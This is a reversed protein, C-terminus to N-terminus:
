YRKRILCFNFNSLTKSPVSVSLDQVRNLKIIEQGITKIKELNNDTYPSSPVQSYLLGGPALLSMTTNAHSVYEQISLDQLAGFPRHLILSYGNPAISKKVDDIKTWTEAKRLDGCSFGIDAEITKTARNDIVNTFAGGVIIEKHILDSIARGNSGGAIDLATKHEHKKLNEKICDLASGNNFEVMDVYSKFSSNDVTWHNRPIELNKYVVETDEYM